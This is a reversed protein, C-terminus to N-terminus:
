IGLIYNTVKSIEYLANYSLSEDMLMKKKIEALLLTKSLFLFLINDLIYQFLICLVINIMGKHRSLHWLIIFM